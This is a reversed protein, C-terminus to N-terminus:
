PRMLKFRYDLLEDIRDMIRPKHRFSWDKDESYVDVLIWVLRIKDDVEAIAQAISLM